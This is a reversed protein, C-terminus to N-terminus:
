HLRHLHGVAEVIERRVDVWGVEGGGGVGEGMVGPRGSNGREVGIRVIWNAVM